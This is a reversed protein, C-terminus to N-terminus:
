QPDDDPEDLDRMASDLKLTAVGFEGYGFLGVIEAV